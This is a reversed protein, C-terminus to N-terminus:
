KKSNKCISLSLINLPRLPLINLGAAHLNISFSDMDLIGNWPSGTMPSNCHQWLNERWNIWVSQWCPGKVMPKLHFFLQSWGMAIALFYGSIAVGPCRIPKQWSNSGIMIHPSIIYHITTVVGMMYKSVKSTFCKSM